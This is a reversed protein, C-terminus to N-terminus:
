NKEGLVGFGYINLHTQRPNTFDYKKFWAQTEPVTHYFKYAPTLTDYLDTRVNGIEYQKGRLKCYVIKLFLLTEIIARQAFHPLKNTVFRMFDTIYLFTNFGFTTGRAYLWVYYKGGSKVKTAVKQFANETNPTHHIVGNSYVVDFSNDKFPLFHLDAQLYCVNPHQMAKEANWVSTSYDIGFVTAGKEALSKCLIGNGCGVDLLLQGNLEAESSETDDYHVQLREAIPVGWITNVNDKHAAGWENSFSFNDPSEIIQPKITAENPVIALIEKKYTEWFSVFLRNKIFIPVGDILPYIRQSPLHVFVGDKVNDLEQKFVHFNLNTQEYPDVFSHAYQIHM